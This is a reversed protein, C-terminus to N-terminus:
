QTISREVIDDGPRDCGYAGFDQWKYPGVSIIIREGSAEPKTLSLVHAEALDRADVYVARYMLADSGTLMPRCM